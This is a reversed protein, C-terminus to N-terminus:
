VRRGVCRQVGGNGTGSVALALEPVFINLPHGKRPPNSLLLIATAACSMLAVQLTRSQGDPYRVTSVAYLLHKRLLFVPGLCCSLLGPGGGTSRFPTVFEKYTGSPARALPARSNADRTMKDRLKGSVLMLPYVFLARYASPAVLVVMVAGLM